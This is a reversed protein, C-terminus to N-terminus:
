RGGASWGRKEEEALSAMVGAWIASMWRKRLSSGIVYVLVLSALCNLQEGRKM